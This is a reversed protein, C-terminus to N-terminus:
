KGTFKIQPLIGTGSAPLEERAQELYSLDVYRSVDELHNGTLGQGYIFDAGQQIGELDQKSLGIDIAALSEAKLNPEVSAALDLVSDDFDLGSELKFMLNAKEQNCAYYYFATIYAKLFDKVADPRQTIFDESVLILSTIKDEDVTRALEAQELQAMIPDWSAFADVKGWSKAGKSKILSLEEYIGINFVEVEKGPNLGAERLAELTKRHAAAGFPIFVRGGKLDAVTKVHSLFPVITGVRNYILRGIIRWKGGAAILMCAPQDATFIIDVAGALAAENLPGGYSFGKFRGALGHLKLINSDKLIVALQGQTAWSTQWGVNIESEPFAPQLELWLIVLVLFVIRKFM